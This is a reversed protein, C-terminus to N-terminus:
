DTPIKRMAEILEKYIKQAQKSPKSLEKFNGVPRHANWNNILNKMVPSLHPVQLLFNSLTNECSISIKEDKEELASLAEGIAQIQALNVNALGPRRCLREIAGCPCGLDNILKKITQPEM